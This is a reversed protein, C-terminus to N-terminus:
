SATGIRGLTEREAEGFGVLRRDGLDFVPRKILTPHRQMLRGAGAADVAREDDEALNRWTTGRRNLLAQWGLEAIWAVLSEAPLGDARLDRFRHEIGQGDLWKRAKRCTDCNPIGYVILM